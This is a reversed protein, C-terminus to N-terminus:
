CLGYFDMTPLHFRMEPDGTQLPWTLKPFPLGQFYATQGWLFSILRGVMWKEPTNKSVEPTYNRVLLSQSDCRRTVDLIGRKENM